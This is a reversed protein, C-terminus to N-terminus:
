DGLDNELSHLHKSLAPGVIENVDMGSQQLFDIMEKVVKATRKDCLVVCNTSGKYVFHLYSQDVTASDRLINNIIDTIGEVAEKPKNAEEKLGDLFSKDKKTTEKILYRNMENSDNFGFVTPDVDLSPDLDKVIATFKVRDLEGHIINDRVTKIKQNRVDEHPYVVAPIETFGLLVAARHRHEGAWILYHPCDKDWEDDWEEKPIVYVKIPDTFGEEQIKNVLASFKNSDMVNPNWKNPHCQDVPLLVPAQIM